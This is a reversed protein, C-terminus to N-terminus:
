RLEGETFDIDPFANELENCTLQADEHSLDKLDAYAQLIADIQKKTLVNIRMKM